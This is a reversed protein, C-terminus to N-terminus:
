YAPHGDMAFVLQEEGWGVLIRNFALYRPYDISSMGAPGITAHPNFPFESANWHEVVRRMSWLEPSPQLRLVDVKEEDGFVEVGMVKLTIPRSLVALMSADKAMENFMTPKLDKTEGAYVLTLHPLDISCWDTTIPLLAIMVSGSVDEVM